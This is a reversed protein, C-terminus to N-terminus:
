SITLQVTSGNKIANQIIPFVIDFAERSREITDGTYELGVLICGKSDCPINGCHIEVFERGPVNQLLPVLHGAHPSDYIEIGYQGTPISLALNEMTFCIKEGDALMEGFLADTTQNTRKTELDTVNTSTSTLTAVNGQANPLEGGSKLAPMESSSAFLSSMFSAAQAFLQTWVNAGM